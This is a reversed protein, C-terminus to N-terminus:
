CNVQECGCVDVKLRTPELFGTISPGYWGNKAADSWHVKGKRRGASRGFGALDTGSRSPFAHYGVRSLSGGSM